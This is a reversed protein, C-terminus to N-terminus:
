MRDDRKESADKGEATIDGTGMLVIEGTEKARIPRARYGLCISGPCEFALSGDDTSKWNSSLDVPIQIPLTTKVEIGKSDYFKYTLKKAFWMYSLIGKGEIESIDSINRDTLPIKM